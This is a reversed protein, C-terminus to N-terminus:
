KEDAVRDELPIKSVYELHQPDIAPCVSDGLDIVALQDLGIVWNFGSSWLLGM